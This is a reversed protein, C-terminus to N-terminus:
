PIQRVIINETAVALAVLAFGLALPIHFLDKNQRYRKTEVKTKEMQDIQEYIRKLRQSDTARFYQGGTTEAIKALTEEDIEIDLYRYHTKGFVDQVPYLVKGRKGIGITYIKIGLAAAAQAATIPDVNGANNRGDTLLIIVKSKAESKRLRNAATIIADGIATGDEITGVDVRQLLDLLINYDITLPCQPFAKSAFVVLGIRDSRRGKIFNAAERKAAEIRNLPKFDLALMSSSIDLTIVIDIGETYVREITKGAQPRAAAISLAVIASAWMHPTAKWLKARLTPPASRFRRTVTYIMAARGFRGLLIYGVPVLVLWM